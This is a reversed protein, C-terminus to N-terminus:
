PQPNENAMGIEALAKEMQLEFHKQLLLEAVRTQAKDLYAQQEGGWRCRQSSDMVHKGAVLYPLASRKVENAKERDMNETTYIMISALAITEKAQECLEPTVHRKARSAEALTSTLVFALILLWKM